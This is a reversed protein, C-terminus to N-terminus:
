SPIIVICNLSETLFARKFAISVVM